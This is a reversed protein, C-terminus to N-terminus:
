FRTARVDLYTDALAVGLRSPPEDLVVVGMTRLRDAVARRRAVEGVAVARRHVDLATTPRTTVLEHVAPDAVAAVVVVHHRVVSRAAAVLGDPRGRDVLDTLMIVLSRRQARELLHTVAALHDTEVLQAELDHVADAVRAVQDTRRAAALSSRLEVDAALLSIRDGAGAAVAAVSMAADMAQELRSAGDVDLAMARGTDLLVAVNRDREARFTRVIPRATRATAAWDIRRSEDDITYDRLQEFETANGRAATTWTGVLPLRGRRLRLETARLSRFRPVVRLESRQHVDFQRVGLGLPGTLRCTIREFVFRGRRTPVLECEIVAEADPELEVTARRDAGLSPVLDDALRLRVRRSSPGRVWWRLPTARGVTAVGPLEREVVVSSPGGARVADVGIVAVAVLDLVLLDVWTPDGPWVLVVAAVLGLLAVGRGTPLFSSRGWSRAGDSGAQGEDLAVDLGPPTAVPATM